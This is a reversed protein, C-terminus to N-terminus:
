PPTSPAPARDGLPLRQRAVDGAGSPPASSTVGDGIDVATLGDPGPRPRRRDPVVAGTFDAVFDVRAGRGARQRHRAPPHPRPRHHRDRRRAPRGRQLRPHRRAHPHREGWLTAKLTRGASARTRADLASLPEDLLLVMPDRALTRALAVRQSEGGSYTGPRVDALHGVGFRELLEVAHARREERKQGRLPYAVNQWGRLHPFLAYNQFLYGCRRRDPACRCARETDLWMEDGCRM